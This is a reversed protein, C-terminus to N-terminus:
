NVSQQCKIPEMDDIWGKTKYENWTKLYLDYQDIGFNFVGYDGKANTRLYYPRPNHYQKPINETEKVYKVDNESTKKIGIGMSTYEHVEIIENKNDGSLIKVTVPNVKVVEAFDGHFEWGERWEEEIDLRVIDGVQYDSM